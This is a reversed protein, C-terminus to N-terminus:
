GAASRALQRAPRRAGAPAAVRQGLQGGRSSSTSSAARARAQRVGLDGRSSTTVSVVTFVCTARRARWARGARGRGPRRGRRRTRVPPGRSGSVACRRRGRARSTAAASRASGGHCTSRRRSASRPGVVVEVAPRGRVPPGFRIPGDLLSTANLDLGVGLAQTLKGPGSCLEEPPGARAARADGRHGRAARARPHPGRRGRGRARLGRQAARPHRLLPLRLRARRGSCRAGLAADARRLRPLRARVDHYAETEVIM